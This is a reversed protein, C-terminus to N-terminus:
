TLLFTAAFNQSESSSCQAVATALGHRDRPRRILYTLVKATRYHNNTRRSFGREVVYGAMYGRRNPRQQDAELYKL